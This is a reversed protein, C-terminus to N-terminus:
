DGRVAAETLVKPDQSYPVDTEIVIRRLAGTFPHPVTYRRSVPLGEDYGICLNAGYYHWLPPIGVEISGEGLSSGDAELAFVGGRRGDEVTYRLVLGSMVVDPLDWSVAHNEGVRSLLFHVRGEDALLAWGNNWDGQACIVGTTGRDMSAEVALTFGDSLVPGSHEHVPTTNPYYTFNTRQQGSPQSAAAILDVFSGEILPLVQNKEAQQWWVWELEAVVEPHDAAVDRAESFDSTVDFLHWMDTEYSRSGELVESEVGAGAIVHNTTAKWGDKYLSRTGVMEFYQVRQTSDAEGRLVPLMSRGDLELGETSVGAMDCVTPMLDVIHNFGSRIEGEHGRLGAPWSVICPVRTGGLWSYRKWLRFPTNGVWAWGWAYHNYWDPGGITDLHEAM